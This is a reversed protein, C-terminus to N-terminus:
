NVDGIRTIGRRKLAIRLARKSRALLAEFASVTIGLIRAAQPGNVESFYYLSLAERQRSSLGELAEAVIAGRQNEIARDLGGPGPEIVEDAEEIQAFPRRRRRDISSNLVVRYLWTSFKAGREPEWCPAMIWAKLFADQVVEDADHDNGTISQALALTPRTHREMLRRFAARDGDAAAELLADDSPEGTAPSDLGDPNLCTGRCDM